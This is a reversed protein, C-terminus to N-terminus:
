VAPAFIRLRSPFLGSRCSLGGFGYETALTTPNNLCGPLQSLLLWRKFFAYYSVPRIIRRRFHEPSLITGFSRSGSKRIPLPANEIPQLQRPLTHHVTSFHNHQCLYRYFLHFVQEGYDWPKRPLPLRGLTLRGRLRPPFAYDIPFLDYM